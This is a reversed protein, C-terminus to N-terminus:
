RAYIKVQAQAREPSNLWIFLTNNLVENLKLNLFLKVILKLFNLWCRLLLSFIKIVEEQPNLNTRKKLRDSQVVNGSNFLISTAKPFSPVARFDEPAIVDASSESGSNLHNDLTPTYEVTTM